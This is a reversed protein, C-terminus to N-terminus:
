AKTDLIIGKRNRRKDQDKRMRAYLRRGIGLFLKRSDKLSVLLGLLPLSSSLQNLRSVFDTKETLAQNQPSSNSRLPVVNDPLTEQDKAQDQSPNQSPDEEKKSAVFREFPQPGGSQANSAIPKIFQTLADGIKPALFTWGKAAFLACAGTCFPAYYFERTM